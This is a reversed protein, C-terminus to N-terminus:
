EQTLGKTESTKERKMSWDDVVLTLIQSDLPSEQLIRFVTKGDPSIESWAKKLRCGMEVRRAVKLEGNSFVYFSPELYKSGIDNPHINSAPQILSISVSEGLFIRKKTAVLINKGACVITALDFGFVSALRKGQSNEEEKQTLVVPDASGNRVFFAECDKPLDFGTRTAPVGAQPQIPTSTDKVIESDSRPGHSARFKAIVSAWKSETKRRKERKQAKLVEQRRRGLVENAIAKLRESLVAQDEAPLPQDRRPGDLFVWGIIESGKYVIEGEPTLSLEKVDEGLVMRHLYSYRQGAEQLPLQRFVGRDKRGVSLFVPKEKYPTLPELAAPPPTTITEEERFLCAVGPYNEERRILEVERLHKLSDNKRQRQGQEATWIRQNESESIKQKAQYEIALRNTDRELHTVRRNFEETIQRGIVANSSKRTQNEVEVLARVEGQLSPDSIKLIENSEEDFWKQRESEDERVKTIESRYWLKTEAMQEHFFSKLRTAYSLTTVNPQACIVWDFVLIGLLFFLRM